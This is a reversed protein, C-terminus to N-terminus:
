FIGGKYMDNFNTHQGELKQAEEGEPNLEISKKLDEFASEKDGKLNKARGREAYAKGFEPKLDIIETLFKIGEDLRNTSIYLGSLRLAGEDSFPNLDLVNQYDTEAEETNGMAEHIRGRMLFANEEEPSLEIAKEVDVLAEKYQDMLLLVEGRLLYADMFDEKLSIARTLDAVAGLLDNLTKKARGMLFCAKFNESDLALIRDCDAIAGENKDSMFLLNARTLLTDVHEPEEEVMQDLVELAKGPENQATYATVLYNKTEFDPMLNLAENFCKVAYAFKGMQLARVGDYKLIDFNKQNNKKGEEEPTGQASGSSFLSKFFNAM